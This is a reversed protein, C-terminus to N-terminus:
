CSAYEFLPIPAVVVTAHRGELGSILNDLETMQVDLQKGFIRADKRNHDTQQLSTAIRRLDLFSDHHLKILRQVQLTNVVARPFKSLRISQQAM